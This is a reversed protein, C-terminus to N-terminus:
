AGGGSEQHVVGGGSSKPTSPQPTASPASQQTRPVLESTPQSAAATSTVGSLAAPRSSSFPSTKKILAPLSTLTRMAPVTAATKVGAAIPTAITPRVGRDGAAGKIAMGVLFGVTAAVLVAAMM